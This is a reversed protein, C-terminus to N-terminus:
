ANAVEHRAVLGVGVATVLQARVRAVVEVGREVVLPNGGRLPRDIRGTGIWVAAATACLGRADVARAIRIAEVAEPEAAQVLVPLEGILRAVVRVGERRAQ